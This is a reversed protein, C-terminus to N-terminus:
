EGLPASPVIPVEPVNIPTNIPVCLVLYLRRFVLHSVERQGLSRGWGGRLRRMM